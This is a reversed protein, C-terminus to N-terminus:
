KSSSALQTEEVFRVGAVPVAGKTSRAFANLAQENVVLWERPVAAADVVVARWTKRLSQGKVVPAVSAVTIVPAPAVAAADAERLAAKAAAANAAATAKEAERRAAARDAETQAAAERARAEEAAKIAAEERDRQARAAAEAKEREKRAADDALRQLRVQEALRKAEEAQQYDLMKRKVAAEAEALPTLLTKEGEVTKKWAINAAAKIPAWFDAVNRQVAKIKKLFDAAGSYQEPNTVELTTARAVVPSVEAKITEVNPVLETSM